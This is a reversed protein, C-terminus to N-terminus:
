QVRGVGQEEGCVSSGSSVRFKVAFASLGPRVQGTTQALPLQRHKMEIFASLPARQSGCEEQFAGLSFYHCHYFM